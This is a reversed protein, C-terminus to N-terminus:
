PKPKNIIPINNIISAVNIVKKITPDEVRPASKKSSGIQNSNRSIDRPM